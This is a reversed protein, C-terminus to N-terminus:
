LGAALSRYRHQKANEEPRQDDHDQDPKNGPDHCRKQTRGRSSGVLRLRGTGVLFMGRHVLIDPICPVRIDRFVFM